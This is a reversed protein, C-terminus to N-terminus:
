IIKDINYVQLIFSKLIAKKIDYKEIEFFLFFASNKILIPIKKDTNARVEAPILINM